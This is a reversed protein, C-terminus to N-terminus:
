GGLALILDVLDLARSSIRNLNDREVVRFFNGPIYVRREFNLEFRGSLQFRLRGKECHWKTFTYFDPTVFDAGMDARAPHALDVQGLVGALQVACDRYFKQRKRERAIGLPHLAENTLCSRDGTEIM